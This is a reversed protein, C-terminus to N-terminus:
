PSSKGQPNKVPRVPPTDEFVNGGWQGDAAFLPVRDLEVVLPDAAEMQLDLFVFALHHQGVQFAGVAGLDVALRHLKPDEPRPVHDRQPSRHQEESRPFLDGLTQRQKAPRVQGLPDRQLRLLHALARARHRQLELQVKAGLRVRLGQQVRQGRGVQGARQTGALGGLNASNSCYM